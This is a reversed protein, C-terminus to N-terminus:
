MDGKGRAVDVTHALAQLGFAYFEALADHRAGAICLEEHVIGVADSHLQIKGLWSADDNRPSAFCRARFRSIGPRTSVCWGPVVAGDRRATASPRSSRCRPIGRFSSGPTRRYKPSSLISWHGGWRNPM